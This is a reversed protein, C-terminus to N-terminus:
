ESRTRSSPARATRRDLLPPIEEVLPGSGTRRQDLRVAQFVPLARRSPTKRIMSWHRPAHPSTSPSRSSSQHEAYRHRQASQDLGPSQESQPLSQAPGAIPIRCGIPTPPRAGCRRRHWPSAPATSTESTPMAGSRRDAPIGDCVRASECGPRVSPTVGREVDVVLVGLDLLVVLLALDEAGLGGDVVGTVETDTDARCSLRSVEEV